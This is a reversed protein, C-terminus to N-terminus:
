NNCKRTKRSKCKWKRNSQNKHKVHTIVSTESKLM